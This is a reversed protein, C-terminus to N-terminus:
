MNKKEDNCWEVFINFSLTPRSHNKTCQQLANSETSFTVRCWDHKMCRQNPSFSLAVMVSIVANALHIHCMVSTRKTERTVTSLKSKHCRWIENSGGDFVNCPMSWAEYMTPETLFWACCTSLHSCKRSSHPVYCINEQKGEHSYKSDSLSPRLESRHYRWIENSGGIDIASSVANALHIHCLVYCVNEQKRKDHSYRSDSHSPRLESRHYRRIKNSGGFDFNCPM